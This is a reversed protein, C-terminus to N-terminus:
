GLCFTIVYGPALGRSREWYPVTARKTWGLPRTRSGHQCQLLELSAEPADAVNSLVTRQHEYSMGAKSVTSALVPSRAVHCTHAQGPSSSGCAVTVTACGVQQIHSTAQRILTLLLQTLLVCPMCTRKPRHECARMQFLDMQQVWRLLSILSMERSITRLCCQVFTDGGRLTPMSLSPYAKLRCNNACPLSAVLRTSLARKLKYSNTVLKETPELRRM